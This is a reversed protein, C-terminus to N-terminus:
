ARQGATESFGAADLHQAKFRKWRTKLRNMLKKVKSKKKQGSDSATVSTSAQQQNDEIYGETPIYEDPMGMPETPSM